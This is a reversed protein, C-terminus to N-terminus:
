LPRAGPRAAISAVEGSAQRRALARYSRPPAGTVRKFATSFATESAYGLSGALEAVSADEDRLREQALRMRWATLYALPAAGALARFRLAFTTRSMGAVKALAALQWDRGPDGHMRELARGIRADSMARLWGTPLADPSELHARLIHVFMLQALQTQVATAGPRPTRQEYLLQQVIWALAAGHPSAAAVHALPPLAYKLLAETSPEVAVAGGVLVCDDGRTIRIVRSGGAFVVNPDALPANLDSGMVFGTTGSVMFLDGAQLRVPKARRGDLRIWCSGKALASFKILSPGPFHIAWPAGAVITRSLVSRAQILRLVDSLADSPRRGSQQLLAYEESM